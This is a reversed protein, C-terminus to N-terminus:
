VKIGLKKMRSYLTGRNIGLIEAAAGHGYIKGGTKKLVHLIYRRQLEDLTILESTDDIFTPKPTAAINIEIQDGKSLIVSREIVHELERINGPWHYLSLRKEEEPSIFLHDRQYKTAFQKLFYRALEVIDKGRERLPPLTLPVTNLRFFLDERFNKKRVEEELNRNTAVVLRFDSSIPLTGGVRIFTKEQLVRLLKAQTAKPLEGVEDIFLTGNDALELRGIKQRDAGTFAGKEHGFLESEVLNEPITTSDVTIFPASARSSMMHIRKALLEKGVGTEGMVLVTSEAAAVRDAQDLLDMMSQCSAVLEGDVSKHSLIAERAVTKKTKEIAKNFEFCRIFYRELHGSVLELNKKTLLEFYNELYTNDHYLVGQCAGNISIPLCIASLPVLQNSSNKISKNNILIPRSEAQCKIIAAMNSRFSTSYFDSASMNKCARPKLTKKRISDIWLIAGREARFARNTFALINSISRDIDYHYPLKSLMNIFDEIFGNGFHTINVENNGKELLFRLDDPFIFEWHGSLSLRAKMALLRADNINGDNVKLRAIELQTKALQIPDCSVKLCSESEYLLKTIIEKPGGTDSLDKAKLRLSIGKLHTNKEKMLKEILQQYGFGSPPNYGQKEVDYVMQLLWPTMSLITIRSKIMRSYVRDLYETAMSLNNSNYYYFALGSEACHAAFENKSAYSSELAGSLHLKAIEYKHTALLLEGLTARYSASISERGMRQALHYFYDICGIARDFHGTYAASHAMFIPFYLFGAHSHFYLETKEFMEVASKNLGQIFYYLGMFGASQILMDEDGLEEFILRGMELNQLAESTRGFTFNYFGLHFNLLAKSRKDGLRDTAQIARKLTRPLLGLYRGFFDSLYCLQICSKVFIADTNNEGLYPPLTSTANILNDYAEYEKETDLAHQAIEAYLFAADRDNGSRVLMSARLPLPIEEWLNLESLRECIAKSKDKDNREEFTKILYQPLKESLGFVDQEPEHILDLEKGRRLLDLLENPPLPVIAGVIKISVPGKFADLVNLFELQGSTLEMEAM